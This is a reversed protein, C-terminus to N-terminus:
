SELRGTFKIGFEWFDEHVQRRRVIEARMFVFQGEIPKLRVVIQTASIFHSHIFSAGSRSLNRSWVELGPTHRNFGRPYQDDFIYVTVLDHYRNRVHARKESVRGEFRDNWRELIDRVKEAVTKRQNTQQHKPM